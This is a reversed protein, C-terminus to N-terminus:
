GSEAGSRWCYNKADAGAFDCDGSLILPAYAQVASLFNLCKQRPMGSMMVTLLDGCSHRVAVWYRKSRNLKGM